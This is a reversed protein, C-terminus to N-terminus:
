MKSHFLLRYYKKYVFEIYENWIPIRNLSTEDKLDKRLLSLLKKNEQFTDAVILKAISYKYYMENLWDLYKSDVKKMLLYNIFRPNNILNALYEAEAKTLGSKQYFNSLETIGNFEGKVYHITTKSQLEKWYDLLTIDGHETIWTDDHSTLVVLAGNSISQKLVNFILKSRNQNEALPLGRIKRSKGILYDASDYLIISGKETEDQIAHVIIESATKEYHGDIYCYPINDKRFFAKLGYLIASKGTGASGILFIPKRDNILQLYVEKTEHPLWISNCDSETTQIMENPNFYGIGHYRHFKEGLNNYIYPNSPEPKGKVLEAAM